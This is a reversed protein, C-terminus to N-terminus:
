NTDNNLFLLNDWNAKMRKDAENEGLKEKLFERMKEELWFVRTELHDYRQVDDVIKVLEPDILIDGEEYLRNVVGWLDMSSRPDVVIMSSAVAKNKITNLIGFDLEEDWTAV